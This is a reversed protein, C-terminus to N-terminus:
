ETMLHTKERAFHYFKDVNGSSPNMQRIVDSQYVTISSDDISKIFEIQKEGDKPMSPYMTITAPLSMYGDDLAKQDHLLLKDEWHHNLDIKYAFAKM